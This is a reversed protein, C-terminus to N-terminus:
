ASRIARSCGGDGEDMSQERGGSEPWIVARRVTAITRGARSMIESQRWLRKVRM